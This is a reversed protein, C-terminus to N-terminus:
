LLYLVYLSFFIYKKLLPRAAHKVDDKDANGKDEEEEEEEPPLGEGV